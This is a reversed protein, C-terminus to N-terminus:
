TAFTAITGLFAVPDVFGTAAGDAAADDCPLPPPPELTAITLDDALAVPEALGASAEVAFFIVPVVAVIAVGDPLGVTEALGATGDADVAFSLLPDPLCITKPLGETWDVDAAFSILPFFTEGIAVGDSLFDVAESLGEAGASAEGRARDGDRPVSASGRSQM